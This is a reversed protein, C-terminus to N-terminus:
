VYSDYGVNVTTSTIIIISMYHLEGHVELFEISRLLSVVVSLGM